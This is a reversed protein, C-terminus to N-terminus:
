QDNIFNEAITFPLKDYNVDSLNCLIAIVMNHKKRFYLFPQVASRAAGTVTGNGDGNDEFKRWGLGYGTSKGNSITLPTFLM